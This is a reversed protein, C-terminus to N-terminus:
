RYDDIQGDDFGWATCIFAGINKGVYMQKKTKKYKQSLDIIVNERRRHWM